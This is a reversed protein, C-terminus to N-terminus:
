KIKRKVYPYKDSKNRNEEWHLAQLNKGSNTGGKSIPKKHDIEWGMESTRGYSPKYIPNGYADKRFLNPNKGKIPSANNWAVEKNRDSAMTRGGFIRVYNHEKLLRIISFSFYISTPRDKIM